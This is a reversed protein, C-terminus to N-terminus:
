SHEKIWAELRDESSAVLADLVLDEFPQFPEIFFRVVDDAYQRSEHLVVGTGELLHHLFRWDRCMQLGTLTCGHWNGLLAIKGTRM